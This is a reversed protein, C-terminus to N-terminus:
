GSSRRASSSRKRAVGRASRDWYRSGCRILARGQRGELRCRHVARIVRPSKHRSQQEFGKPDVQFRPAAYSRPRSTDISPAQQLRSTGACDWLQLRAGNGTASDTVDVCKGIQTNVLNHTSNLAFGQAWGGNCRAPQIMAGNATSSPRAQAREQRLTGPGLRRGARLGGTRLRRGRARLDLRGPRAPKQGAPDPNSGEGVAATASADEESSRSWRAAVPLRRHM